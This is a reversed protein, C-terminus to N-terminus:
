SRAVVVQFGAFYRSKANAHARSIEIGARM